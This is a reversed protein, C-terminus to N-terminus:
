IKYDKINKRIVYDRLYNSLYINLNMLANVMPLLILIRLWYIQMLVDFFFCQFHFMFKSFGNPFVPPTTPTISGFTKRTWQKFGDPDIIPNFLHMGMLLHDAMGEMPNSVDVMAPRFVNALIDHCYAKCDALDGSCLNFEDKIGLFKGVLYMLHRIADLDEDSPSGFGLKEPLIIAPGVFAWQTTVMDFQTMFSSEGHISISKKNAAAHLKRVTKFSEKRAQKDKKYWTLTHNITSLYRLFARLPNDSKQTISLVRVAGPLFMLGLLGSLMCVFFSLINNQFFKIAREVLIQDEVNEYEADDLNDKADYITKKGETNLHEFKSKM